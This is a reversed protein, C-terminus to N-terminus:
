GSDWLSAVAIIIWATTPTTFTVILTWLAPGILVERRGWREGMLGGLVYFFGVGGCVLLILSAQSGSIGKVQTMFDTIYLGTAV